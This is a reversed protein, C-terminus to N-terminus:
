IIVKKSGAFPEPVCMVSNDIPEPKNPDDGEPRDEIPLVKSSTPPTSNASCLSLPWSSGGTCTYMTHISVRNHVTCLTNYM